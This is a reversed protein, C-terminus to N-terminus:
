QISNTPLQHNLRQNQITLMSIENSTTISNKSMTLQHTQRQIRMKPLSPEQVKLLHRRNRRNVACKETRVEYSGWM